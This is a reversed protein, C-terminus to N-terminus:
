EIFDTCEKDVMHALIKAKSEILIQQFSFTNKESLQPVYAHQIHNCAYSVQDHFYIALSFGGMSSTQRSFLDLKLSLLIHSMFYLIRFTLHTPLEVSIYM